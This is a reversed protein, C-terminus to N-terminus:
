YKGRPKRKTQSEALKKELYAIKRWAQQLTDSEQKSMNSYRYVIVREELPEPEPTENRIDDFTARRMRDLVLSRDRWYRVLQDHNVVKDDEIIAKPAEM